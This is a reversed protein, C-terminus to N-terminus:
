KVFPEATVVAVRELKYIAFEVSEGVVALDAAKEHAVLYSSDGDKERVVAISNPYKAARTAM